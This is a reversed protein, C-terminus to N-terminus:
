TARSRRSSSWFASFYGMLHDNYVPKVTSLMSLPCILYSLVQTLVHSNLICHLAMIVSDIKKLNKCFIGWLEGTLALYLTYKTSENISETLWQLSIHLIMSYTNYCCKVTIVAITSCSDLYGATLTLVTIVIFWWKLSMWTDLSVPIMAGLTGPSFKPWTAALLDRLNAKNINQKKHKITSCNM